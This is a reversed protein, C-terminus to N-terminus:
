FWFRTFILRVEHSAATVNIPMTSSSDFYLKCGVVFQLPRDIVLGNALVWIFVESLMAWNYVVKSVLKFILITTNSCIFQGVQVHDGQYM